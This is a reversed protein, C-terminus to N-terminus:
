FAAKFQYFSNSKKIKKAIGPTYYVTDETILIVEVDFKQCMEFTQEAGAVLFATSLVDCEIGKDGIVTVSLVGNDSPYGTEPNLIHHWRNGDEDEFYRQYVGSTIVAKDTVEVSCALNEGEQPNQIGIEYTGKAYINGGLDLLAEKVGDQELIEALQDTLYGKAVGGTHTNVHIPSGNEDLEYFKRPWLNFRYLCSYFTKLREEDKDEVEIKSLAQDWITRTEDRVEGLTKGCLERSFNM